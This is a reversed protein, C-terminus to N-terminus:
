FLFSCCGFFTELGEGTGASGLFLAIARAELSEGSKSVGSSPFSSIFFIPFKKIPLNLDRVPYTFGLAFSSKSFDLLSGM